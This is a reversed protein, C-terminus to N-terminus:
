GGQAPLGRWRSLAARVRQRKLTATMALMGHDDAVATIVDLIRGLDRVLDRAVAAVALLACGAALLTIAVSGAMDAMLVAASLLVILAIGGLRPRVVM